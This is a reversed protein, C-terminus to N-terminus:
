RTAGSESTCIHVVGGSTWGEGKGLITEGSGSDSGKGLSVGGSAELQLAMGSLLQATGAPVRLDRLSLPCSVLPIGSPEAVLWVIVSLVVGDSALPPLPTPLLDLCM